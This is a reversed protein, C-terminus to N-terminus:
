AIEPQLPRPTESALQNLRAVATPIDDIPVPRSFVYGQAADVGLARLREAQDPTEVGEATTTMGLAKAIAVIARVLSEEAADPRALDDIFSKDIKVEDARFRRLYALSSYGTGFDDISIQFGRDALALLVDLAASKNEMLISETLELRLSHPGLGARALAQQPLDLFNPERLQRASLNVAVYLDKGDPLTEHWVALQDCATELVWAGLEVIMGTEEAIPIFDIPPIFGLEPHTWRLLAEFGIVRRTPVDIVPQYHLSLENRALAGRLDRELLLRRATVDHSEVDFVAVADRGNDKAQYMATDADRVLSESDAPADPGAFAIGISASTYIETGRASFPLVFSGRIEQAYRLAQEDSTIHELIVVFEDGGVRGVVAGTPAVGCLRKSVAVLLDDGLGHGLADNVLKFRDLDLFLLAVLEDTGSRRALAQGLRDHIYVRNPLGTLPDHTAQQVLREESRAHARLARFVRWIALTTLALVTIALVWRDGASLGRKSFVVVAPLGLAAAVFALNMRSPGQEDRPVPECLERMSPHLLMVSFLVNAFLYPMDVVASPLVAIRADAFMYVVDGLLMMAIACLLIRHALPRRAGPNAIVQFGAVLLFVSMPPYAALVLRVTFPAHQNALAPTILYAWACALAALGALSANLLTDPDLRGGSRIRGIGLLGAALLVYGPLVILDPVLSRDPSLDGLTGWALRMAGGVGFAFFMAVFCVFPWTIAPKYKRVGYVACGFGTFLLLAFVADDLPGLLGFPHALALGFGTALYAWALAAPRRALPAGVTDDDLMPEEGPSTTAQDGLMQETV